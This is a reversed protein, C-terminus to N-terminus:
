LNQLHLAYQASYPTIVKMTHWGNGKTGHKSHFVDPIARETTQIPHYKFFLDFDKSQPHAFYDFPTDLSESDREDKGSDRERESQVDLQEAIHFLCTWYDISINITCGDM